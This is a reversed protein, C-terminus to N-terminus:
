RCLSHTLTQETTPKLSTMNHTETHTNACVQCVQRLVAGVEDQFEYTESNQYNALIARGHPGCSISRILTQSEPVVHTAELQIKFKMGLESSFSSLPSLTGSTLIVSHACSLESFAVSPNLCWLNLTYLWVKEMVRSRRRRRWGDDTPKTTATRM